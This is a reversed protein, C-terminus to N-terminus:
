QKFNKIFGIILGVLIAIVILPLIVRFVLWSIGWLVIFVIAIVFIITFIGILKSVIPNVSKGNFSINVYKNNEETEEKDDVSYDSYTAGEGQYGGNEIIAKAILRPNGLGGIVDEEKNGKKIEESIYESYYCIHEYAAKNDMSERLASSLNELFEEKKM